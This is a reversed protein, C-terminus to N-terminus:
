EVTIGISDLWARYRRANALHQQYDSTFNHYGPRTEDACMYLYDNIPADLVADITRGDVIRIPGPPLGSNQYTNYPSDTELHKGNIRKLTFDGVAFKVTPDAQLKMGNKLRNLYLRAIVPQEDLKNSEEAVISALTVVEVPSLGLSDAKERRKGNWFKTETYERLTKVVEEPTANGYFEYTDPIYAAAFNAKNYGSKTLVSDAAKLFDKDSWEFDKSVARALEDLTRVSNFTVNLTSSRGSILRSAVSWAKDGPTIVYYGPAGEETGGRLRWLTMVKDGYSGLNTTLVDKIRSENSNSPIRFVVEKSGDYKANAMSYLWIGSCVACAVILGIAILIIKRTKRSM